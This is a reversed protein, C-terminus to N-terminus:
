GNCESLHIGGLTTMVHLGTKRAWEGDGCSVIRRTGWPRRVRTLFSFAFCTELMRFANTCMPHRPSIGRGGVLRWALLMGPLFRMHAEHEKRTHQHTDHSVCRLVSPPSHSLRSVHISLDLDDSRPPRRETNQPQPARPLVGSIKAISDRGHGVLWSRPTWYPSPGDLGRDKRDSPRPENAESTRWGRGRRRVRM